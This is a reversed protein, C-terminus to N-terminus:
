KPSKPGRGRHALHEDWAMMLIWFLACASAGAGFGEWYPTM